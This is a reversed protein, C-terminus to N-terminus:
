QNPNTDEESETVFCAVLGYSIAPRIWIETLMYNTYEDLSEYYMIDFHYFTAILADIVFILWLNGKTYSQWDKGHHRVGQYEEQIKYEDCISKVICLYAYEQLYADFFPRRCCIKSIKFCFQM